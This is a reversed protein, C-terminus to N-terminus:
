YKNQVVLKYVTVAFNNEELINYIIICLDILIKLLLMTDKAM